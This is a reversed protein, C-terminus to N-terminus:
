DKFLRMIGENISIKPQWRIDKKIKSINACSRNPDGPRKSIFIKKGGITSAIKNISTEKGSGLNYIKNKLNSKALIVFANTLDDVHIFDRTQRGNGVITLPKHRKKQTLFNSFVAGYQSTRNLRPGYVNFFRCSINPMRFFNAYKIVAEEGLFKTFAYPHKTDIKDTERTPIKKPTGYCSSSAAYIFKKIKVQKAAELINLTGLTNNMFYKRPNEISPVIEALGALHFVYNVGKFHKYLKRNNSIDSKIIKVNKKSHHSLNDKKGSVFNDIVIVKHGEEVLRDVLNSGIFGAGGTVISKFKKM